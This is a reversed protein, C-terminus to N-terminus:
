WVSKLSKKEGYTNSRLKHIEVEKESKKLSTATCGIKLVNLGKNPVSANRFPNCYRLKLKLINFSLLGVVNYVCKILNPGTVGFIILHCIFCKPRYPLFWCICIAGFIELFQHVSKRWIKLNPLCPHTPIIFKVNIRREGL